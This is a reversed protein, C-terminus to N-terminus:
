RNYKVQVHLIPKCAFHVSIHVIVLNYGKRNIVTMFEKISNNEAYFRVAQTNIRHPRHCRKSKKEYSADPFSLCDSQSDGLNALKLNVAM